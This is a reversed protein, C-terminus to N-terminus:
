RRRLAIRAVAVLDTQRGALHVLQVMGPIHGLPHLDARHDACRRRAMDPALGGGGAIDDDQQATAGAAVTDAARRTRALRVLERAEFGAPGLHLLAVGRDLAFELPQEPALVGALEDLAAV